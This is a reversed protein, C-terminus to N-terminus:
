VSFAIALTVTDGPRAPGTSIVIWSSVTSSSGSACLGHRYRKGVLLETDATLRKLSRAGTVALQCTFADIRAGPRQISPSPM